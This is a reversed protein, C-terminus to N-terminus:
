VHARGIEVIVIANNIDGGKILNNSLLAELEHLFCFTRSPAIQDKFDSIKKLSAHQTGLVESNFDILTTVHYDVAPTAKLEVGKEEDIYIINSDITYWDKSENQEKIGTRAIEEVFQRSSGDMIPIEPGDVEILCNDVSMGVLAALIHEVTSIRAGNAELTTGRKTDVVLDCDAKIIPQETLDTRKFQYGFGAEAPQLVMNVIAGTHLGTGSISISKKLTHQKNPNFDKVKASKNLQM